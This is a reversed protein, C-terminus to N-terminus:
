GPTDASRANGESLPREYHILEVESGSPATDLHRRVPVFGERSLLTRSARNDVATRAALAKLGSREAFQAALALAAGMLGGGRADPLLWFGVEAATRTVDFIVLSGVFRDTAADAIALVALEGRALGEAAVGDIMEIVSAQTYESAPLHAYARVAEDNTGDAYAAADSHSMTRIRVLDDSLPLLSSDLM